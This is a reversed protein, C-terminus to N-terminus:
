SKDVLASEKLRGTIRNVNMAMLNDINISKTTVVSGGSNNSQVCDSYILSEVVETERAYSFNKRHSFYIYAIYPLDLTSLVIEFLMIKV